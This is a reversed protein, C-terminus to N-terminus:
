RYHGVCGIPEFRIQELDDATRAVVRNDMDYMPGLSAEIMAAAFRAAIRPIIEDAPVTFQAPTLLCKGDLPALGRGLPDTYLQLYQGCNGIRLKISVAVVGCEQRSIRDIRFPGGIDQTIATPESVM